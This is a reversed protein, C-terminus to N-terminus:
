RMGQHWSLVRREVSVFAANLAFGLLGILLIGAWMEPIAFSRQSQLVFFGIGNTSAVMESVVMLILALSLSTRMGAFVRPAAAPLIVSRVRGWGTLGFMRATDALTSDIGRVGDITNLLIPFTCVLAIIFIKMADGVGFVLIAFPILAPAPIARVFDVVPMAVRRALPSLGLLLGGTVAVSCAAAFGLTARLLSPAVDSGLRDFLWLERFEVLIDSLPPFYFSNAGESWIWWVALLLLPTGVELGIATSRRM